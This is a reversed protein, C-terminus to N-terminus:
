GGVVHDGQRDGSTEAHEFGSLWETTRRGPSSRAPSAILAGVVRLSGRRELTATTATNTAVNDIKNAEGTLPCSRGTTARTAHCAIGGSVTSGVSNSIM